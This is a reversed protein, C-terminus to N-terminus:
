RGLHEVAGRAMRRKRERGRQRSHLGVTTHDHAWRPARRSRPLIPGLDAGCLTAIAIMTRRRAASRLVREDSDACSARSALGAMELDAKRRCFCRSRSCNAPFRSPQCSTAAATVDSSADSSVVGACTGDPRVVARERLAMRYTHRSICPAPAPAAVAYEPPGVSAPPDTQLAACAHVDYARVLAARLARPPHLSPLYM